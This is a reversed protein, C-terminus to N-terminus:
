STQIALSILYKIINENQLLTQTQVSASKYNRLLVKQVQTVIAPQENIYAGISDPAPKITRFRKIFQTCNGQTITVIDVPLMGMLDKSYDLGLSLIAKLTLPNWLYDRRVFRKLEQPLQLEERIRSALSEFLYNDTEHINDLYQTSSIDGNIWVNYIEDFVIQLLSYLFNNIARTILRKSIEQIESRAKDQLEATQTKSKGKHSKIWAEFKNSISERLRNRIERLTAPDSSPLGMEAQLAILHAAIQQREIFTVTLAKSTEFDTMLMALSLPNFIFPGKPGLFIQPKQEDEGKEVGKTVLAPLEVQLADIIQPQLGHREGIQAILELALDQSVNYVVPLRGYREELAAMFTREPDNTVAAKGIELVDSVNLTFGKSNATSLQVSRYVNMLSANPNEDHVVFALRFLFVTLCLVSLNVEMYSNRSLRYEDEPEAEARDLLDNIPQWVKGLLMDEWGEPLSREDHFEVSDFEDSAQMNLLEVIPDVLRPYPLGSYLIEEPPLGTGAASRYVQVVHWFTVAYILSRPFEHSVTTLREQDASEVRLMKLISDRAYDTELSTEDQLILRRDDLQLLIGDLTYIYYSLQTLVGSVGDSSRIREKLDLYAVAARKLKSHNETAYSAPDFSDSAIIPLFLELKDETASPKPVGAQKAHVLHILAFARHSSWIDRTDYVLDSVSTVDNLFIAFEPSDFDLRGLILSTQIILLLIYKFTYGGNSAAEICYEAAKNYREWAVETDMKTPEIGYSASATNVLVSTRQIYLSRQLANLIDPAKTNGPEGVLKQAFELRDKLAFESALELNDIAEFFVIFKAHIIIMLHEMDLKEHPLSEMGLATFVLVAEALNFAAETFLELYLYDRSGIPRYYDIVYYLLVKLEELSLHTNLKFIKMFVFCVETIKRVEEPLFKLTDKKSPRAADPLSEQSKGGLHTTTIECISKAANDVYTLNNFVITLNKRAIEEGPENLLEITKITFILMELIEQTSFEVMNGSKIISDGELRRLYLFPSVLGIFFKYESADPQVERDRALTILTESFQISFGILLDYFESKVKVGKGQLFKEDIGDEVMIRLHRKAAELLSNQDDRMTIRSAVGLLVLERADLGPRAWAPRNSEAYKLEAQTFGQLSHRLALHACDEILALLKLEHKEAGM